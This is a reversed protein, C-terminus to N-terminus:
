ALHEPVPVPGSVEAEAGTVDKYALFRYGEPDLEHVRHKAPISAGALKADEHDGYSFIMYNDVHSWLSDHIEKAQHAGLVLGCNNHTLHWKALHKLTGPVHHASMYNHAEDIVLYANKLQGFARMYDEAKDETLPADRVVVRTHGRIWLRLVDAPSRAVSSGPPGHEHNPDLVLYRNMQSLLHEVLVSKGSNKQGLVVTIETLDVNM